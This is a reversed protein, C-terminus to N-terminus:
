GRQGSNQRVEKNIKILTASIQERIKENPHTATLTKLSDVVGDKNINAVLSRVVKDVIKPNNSKLALDKLVDFRGSSEIDNIARERKKYSNKSNLAAHVAKGAKETAISYNSNISKSEIPSTIDEITQNTKKRDIAKYYDFNSSASQYAFEEEDETFYSMIVGLTKMSASKADTYRGLSVYCDGLARTADNLADFLLTDDIPVPIAKPENQQEQLIQEFKDETEEPFGGSENTEAIPSDDDEADGEPDICIRSNVEQILLNYAKTYKPLALEAAEIKADKISELTNNFKNFDFESGTFSVNNSKVFCDSYTQKAISNNTNTYSQRTPNLINIKQLSIM